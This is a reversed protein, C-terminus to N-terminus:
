EPPSDDWTRGTLKEWRRRQRNSEPVFGGAPPPTTRLGELEQRLDRAQDIRRTVEQETLQDEYFNRHLQELLAFADKLDPRAFEDALWFLAEGTLDHHKHRWGRQEAVAKVATAVAGWAKEGAQLYDERALEQEAQQIYRRSLGVYEDSLSPTTM